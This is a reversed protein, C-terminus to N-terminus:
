GVCCASSARGAQMTPGIRAAVVLGEAHLTIASESFEDGYWRRLKKAGIKAQLFKAENFWERDAEVRDPPAARRQAARVPAFARSRSLAPYVVFGPARM